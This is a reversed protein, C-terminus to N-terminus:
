LKFNAPSFENKNVLNKLVVLRKDVHAEEIMACTIEHRSTAFNAAYPGCTVDHKYSRIREIIGTWEKSLAANEVAINLGYDLKYSYFKAVNM